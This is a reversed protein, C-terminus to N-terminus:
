VCEPVSHAHQFYPSPSDRSVGCNTGQYHIPIDHIYLSLCTTIPIDHNYLRDIIYIIYIIFTYFAMYIYVRYLSIM